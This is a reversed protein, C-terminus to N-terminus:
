PCIYQETTEVAVGLVRLRAIFADRDFDLDADPDNPDPLWAREPKGTNSRPEDIVCHQCTGMRLQLQFSTVAPNYKTRLLIFLSSRPSLSGPYDDSNKGNSIENNHTVTM